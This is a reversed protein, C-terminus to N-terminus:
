LLGILRHSGIVKRCRGVKCVVAERNIDIASLQNNYCAYRRMLRTLPQLEYLGMNVTLTAIGAIHPYGICGLSM